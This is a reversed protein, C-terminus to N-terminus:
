VSPVIYPMFFGGSGEVRGACPSVGTALVVTRGVGFRRDNQRHGPTPPAPDGLGGEFIPSCFKFRRGSPLQGLATRLSSKPSADYAVEYKTIPHHTRRPVGPVGPVRGPDDGGPDLFAVARDIPADLAPAPKAMREPWTGSNRPVRESRRRSGIQAISLEYVGM